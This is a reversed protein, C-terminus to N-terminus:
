IRERQMEEREQRTFPKAKGKLFGKMSDPVCPKVVLNTLLEDFSQAKERKKLEQLVQFTKEKLAITKM